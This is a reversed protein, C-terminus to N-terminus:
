NYNVPGLVIYFQAIVGHQDAHSVVAADDPLGADDRLGAAGDVDTLPTMEPKLMYSCM